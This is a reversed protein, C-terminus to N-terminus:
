HVTLLITCSVIYWAYCYSWQTIFHIVCTIMMAGTLPHSTNLLLHVNQGWLQWFCFFLASTFIEAPKLLLAAVTRREPRRHGTDMLMTWSLFVPSGTLPDRAATVKFMADLYKLFMQDQSVPEGWISADKYKRGSTWNLSTPSQLRSYGQEGRNQGLWWIKLLQPWWTLLAVINCSTHLRRSIFVNTQTRRYFLLAAVATAAWSRECMMQEKIRRHSLDALPSADNVSGRSWRRVSTFLSLSLSLPVTLFHHISSSSFIIVVTHCQLGKSLNKMTHKFLRGREANIKKKLTDM